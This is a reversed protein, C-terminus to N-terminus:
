KKITRELEEVREKLATKEATLAELAGFATNESTALSFTLGEVAVTAVDGGADQILSLM